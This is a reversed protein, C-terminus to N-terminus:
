SVKIQGEGQVAQAQRLHNEPDHWPGEFWICCAGTSILSSWKGIEPHGHGVYFRRVTEYEAQMMVRGCGSLAVFM